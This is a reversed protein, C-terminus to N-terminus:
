DLSIKTRRIVEGYKASEGAVFAPLKARSIDFAEYGFVQFRSKIDPEALAQDIDQKIMDLVAAPTGKPAAFMTWGTVEFGAPGGAEGVTPVDAATPFRQPTAVAIAKLKGAFTSVTALSGLAFDLEGTTVALYLQMADKYAVHEMKTDTNTTLMSTGVHAWNGIGWSGYNLKGPQQKAAAIIDGVNKFRSQTPVVFFFPARFMPTLLEFDQVPDYPLKNYLHPFLAFNSGDILLLDHGDPKSRKFAEIAIVGNGGPKNDVIVSQGWKKQLKETVSRLLVDPGSGPPFSTVFRVGRSPYNGPTTQATAVTGILIGLVVILAKMMKKM